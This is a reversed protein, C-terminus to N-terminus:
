VKSAGIAEESTRECDKIGDDESEDQQPQETEVELKNADSNEAAEVPSLPEIMQQSELLITISFLSETTTSAHFSSVDM